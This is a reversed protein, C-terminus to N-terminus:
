TDSIENSPEAPYEVIKREDHSIISVDDDTRWRCVAIILLVLTSFM